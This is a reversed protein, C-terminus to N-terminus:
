RLTFCIKIGFTPQYAITNLLTPRVKLSLDDSIDYHFFYADVTADVINLVYVGFMFLVNLDRWRRYNDKARKLQSTIFADSGLVNIYKLDKVADRNQYKSFNIYGNLYDNYKADWHTIFYGLTGMGGYIIILKWYKKNYIQGMGPFVASLIAARTPSHIMKVVSDPLDFRLTDQAFNKQQSYFIIGFFLVLFKIKQSHFLTNLTTKSWIRLKKL